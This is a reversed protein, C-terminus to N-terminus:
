VQMTLLKPVIWALFRLQMLHTRKSGRFGMKGASSWSIVQGDINTVSIIINNFTARIHVQGM